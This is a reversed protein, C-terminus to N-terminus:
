RATVVTVATVPADGAMYMQHDNTNLTVRIKHEGPPLAGIEVEEATVRMIKIGGIYLHGHGEGAVHPGDMAEPAFRFNTADSRIRWGSATEEASISLTPPNTAVMMAGGGHGSHDMQMVDSQSTLTAKVAMEGANQFELTIPFLRGPTLDGSVSMLMVHAGDGALSAGTGAPIPLGTLDEEGHLMALKAEDSTVGLLRDPAGDNAIKLSIAISPTGDFVHIAATADSLRLAPPKTQLAFFAGVGAAILVLATAILRRNGM